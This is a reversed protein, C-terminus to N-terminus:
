PPIPTPEAATVPMISYAYVLAGDGISKFVSPYHYFIEVVVIGTLPAGSAQSHSIRDSLESTTLRTDNTSDYAKWAGGSPFAVLTGGDDIGYVTILVDDDNDQELKLPAIVPPPANPDDPNGNVKGEILDDIGQYFSDNDTYDPRNFPDANSAQRAGERAGDVLIIYQNMYTGGEVVIALLLLLFGLLLSLEVFSQGKPHRKLYDKLHLAARRM